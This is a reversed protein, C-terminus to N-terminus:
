TNDDDPRHGQANQESVLGMAGEANEVLVRIGARSTHHHKLKSLVRELIKRYHDREIEASCPSGACDTGSFEVDNVEPRGGCFPCLLADSAVPTVDNTKENQDKM